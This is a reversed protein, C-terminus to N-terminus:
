VKGDVIGIKKYSFRLYFTQCLGALVFVNVAWYIGPFSAIYTGIWLGIIALVAYIIVAQSIGQTHNQNVLLGSYWSQYVQYGPMLIAFLLTTASLHSLEKSLGSVSEFWYYGLPSLALIVLFSVTTVALIRTFKLLMYKGNPKDLLAVVVENYAFGLSRTIFVLGYVVPWAALSSLADPMRSMGASGAPHILLSALPTIALPLYFSTFQKRNVVFSKTQLAMKNKLISRVALQAYLAEVTVALAVASAGVVIGSFNSLWRGYSLVAILTLLRILTGIAVITSNGHKIMVGQNLRRWAIMITWPTMIQLGVRGPEIISSPVNMLNEAVFYFIPTFAIIIHILSLAVSMVLMYKFLKKYSPLDKALATSATLLMIIPGEVVLSIPYVLSGWAALTIEPFAMRAVFAALMPSEIGMLLWSGALPLWLQFVDKLSIPKSNTM